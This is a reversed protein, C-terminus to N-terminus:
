EDDQGPLALDAELQHFVQPDITRVNASRHPPIAAPLCDVDGEEMMTRAVRRVLQGPDACFGEYPIRWFRDAGIRRQQAEALAAHFRVQRVVSAVPGEDAFDSSDTLGYAQGQDDHILKRAQYLSQAHWLPQREMCIFTAEPLAEAVLHAAANLHNCKAVLPRGVVEHWAVFFRRMEDTAAPTLAPQPNLRDSGLWRDWLHLADNVGSLGATRGYFSKFEVVPEGL